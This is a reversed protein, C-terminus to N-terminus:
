AHNLYRPFRDLLKRTLSKQFISSNGQRSSATLVEQATARMTRLRIRRKEATLASEFPELHYLSDDSVIPLEVTAKNPRSFSKQSFASPYIATHEYAMSHHASSVVLGVEFHWIETLVADITSFNEPFMTRPLTKWYVLKHLGPNFDSPSLCCVFNFNQIAIDWGIKFIFIWVFFRTIAPTQPMQYHIANPERMHCRPSFMCQTLCLNNYLFATQIGSQCLRHRWRWSFYKKKCLKIRDKWIQHWFSGIQSIKLNEFHGGNQPVPSSKVPLKIPIETKYCSLWDM